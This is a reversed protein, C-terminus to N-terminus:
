YDDDPNEEVEREVERQAELGAELLEILREKGLPSLHRYARIMRMEQPDDLTLPM